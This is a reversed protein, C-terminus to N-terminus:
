EFLSSRQRPTMLFSIPGLYKRLLGLRPLGSDPGASRQPRLSRFKCVLLRAIRRPICRDDAALAIRWTRMGQDPEREFLMQLGNDSGSLIFNRALGNFTDPSGQKLISNAIYPACPQPKLLRIQMMENFSCLVWHGLSSRCNLYLRTKNQL